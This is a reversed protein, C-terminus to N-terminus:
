QGGLGRLLILSSRFSYKEEFEGSLFETCYHSDIPGFVPSLYGAIGLGAVLSQLGPGSALLGEPARKM